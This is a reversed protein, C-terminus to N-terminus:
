CVGEYVQLHQHIVNAESQILQMKDYLCRQLAADGASAQLAAQLEQLEGHQVAIQERIYQLTSPHGPPDPPPLPSYLGSSPSPNLPLGDAGPPPPGPARSGALAGSKSYRPPASINAAVKPECQRVIGFVPVRWHRVDTIPAVPAKPSPTPRPSKRPTTRPTAQKSGQKSGWPSPRGPTEALKSARPPTPDFRLAVPPFLKPPAKRQVRGGSSRGPGPGELATSQTMPRPTTSPRVRADDDSPKAPVPATSPKVLAIAPPAPIGNDKKPSPTLPAEPSLTNKLESLGLKRAMQREASRRRQAAVAGAGHGQSGSHTANSHAYLSLAQALPMPPKGGRLVLPPM